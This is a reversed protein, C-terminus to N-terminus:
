TITSFIILHFYGTHHDEDVMEVENGSQNSGEVVPEVNINYEDNMM